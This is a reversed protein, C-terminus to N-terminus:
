AESLPQTQIRLEGLLARAAPGLRDSDIFTLYISSTRQLGNRLPLPKLVGQALQDAIHPKPLWAFGFGQSVMDISTRMHSVTWRQNAGLWGEDRSSELASDRVVIQRCAKLDEFTLEHGLHHLAHDPSAVAIFDIPCLEESFAGRVPQPSLALDVKGKTLLENAGSLATEILEIRLLPFEESVRNFTEYLYRQPFIQDVAITMRTEVGANLSDAVAEIKRAEDLLYASRRLMLEGAETLVAKRGKVTLLKIGLAEELKHVAHHVTSQSKHIAAAAQSFGGHEVVAKFMRWQELTTKLM